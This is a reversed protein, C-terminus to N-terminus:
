LLNSIRRNVHLWQLHKKVNNEWHQVYINDIERIINASMTMFQM